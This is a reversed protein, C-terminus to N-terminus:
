RSVIPGSAYRAIRFQLSQLARRIEGRRIGLEMVLKAVHIQTQSKEFLRGIGEGERQMVPRLHDLGAEPQAANMHATTVWSVGYGAIAATQLVMRLTCRQSGTETQGEELESVEFACQKFAFLRCVIRAAQSLCPVVQTVDEQM